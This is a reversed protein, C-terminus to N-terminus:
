HLHSRGQLRYEQELLRLLWPGMEDAREACPKEAVARLLTAEVLREASPHDPMFRRSHQMMQIAIGDISDDEVPMRALERRLLDLLPAAHRHRPYVRMQGFRRPLASPGTDSLFVFPLDRHRLADALWFCDESRWTVDLIAAQVTDAVPIAELMDQFPGVVRHGQDAIQTALRDMLAADTGAVMVRLSSTM